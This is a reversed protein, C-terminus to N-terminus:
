LGPPIYLTQTISECVVSSSEPAQNGQGMEQGELLMPQVRGISHDCLLIAQILDTSITSVCSLATTYLVKETTQM